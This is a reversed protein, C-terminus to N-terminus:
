GKVARGTEGAIVFAVDLDLEGTAWRVSPGLKCVGGGEGGPRKDEFIVEDADSSGLRAAEGSTENAPASSPYEDSPSEHQAM